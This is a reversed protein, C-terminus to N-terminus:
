NEKKIILEGTKENFRAVVNLNNESLKMQKFWKMPIPVRPTIYGDGSKYLVVKLHKEEM